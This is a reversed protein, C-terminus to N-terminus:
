EGSKCVSESEVMRIMELSNLRRDIFRKRYIDCIHDLENLVDATVKFSYLKEISSEYIFKLTYVTSEEYKRDDPVGPFEGEVALAKLEYICRVLRNDFIDSELARLSQYLLKLIEKEDNNERTYYDSIELFFMGYMSANFDKRFFAFYNSIHAEQITYSNRGQFLRFEGFCFPEVVGSLSNGPRRGGKAFATIKGRESTLITVVWDYEGVPQRKIIMGNVSALDVM